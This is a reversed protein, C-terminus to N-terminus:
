VLVLGCSPCPKWALTELDLCNPWSPLTLAELGVTRHLIFEYLTKFYKIKTLKLLVM